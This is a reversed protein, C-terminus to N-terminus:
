KQNPSPTTPWPSSPPPPPSRLRHPPASAQASPSTAPSPSTPEPSPSERSSSAWAVGAPYATWAGDGKPPLATLDFEAHTKFDLSHLTLINDTRPTAAILTNFTLAAPLCFGGSYDTHEGLLNVRGPAQFIRAAPHAQHLAAIRTTDQPPM